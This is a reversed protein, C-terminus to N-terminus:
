TWITIHGTFDLIGPLLRRYYGPFRDLVLWDFNLLGSSPYGILGFYSFLLFQELLVL